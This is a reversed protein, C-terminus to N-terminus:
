EHISVIPIHSHRLLEKSQSKHFLKELLRHKKPIVMVVDLNHTEAFENITEVVDDDDLFVYQPHVDHLLEDLWASELPIECNRREEEDTVNLVYLEAGFEQVISKIYEVPTTEVVEKFDCALGIKRIKKYSTGPPVVIVPYKLHRIVALTTSGMLMRELATAGHSGMVVAFPQLAECMEALVDATYGLKAETAIDVQGSTKHLASKKLEELRDESLKRIEEVSIANIPSLPAETYSLPLQYTNVLVIRAHIAQAMDLAYNLANLAAPSFDTPVIITKM